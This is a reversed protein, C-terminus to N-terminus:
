LHVVAYGERSIIHCGPGDMPDDYAAAERVSEEAADVVDPDDSALDRYTEEDVKVVFTYTVTSEIAVHPM